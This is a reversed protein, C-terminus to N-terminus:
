SLSKIGCLESRRTLMESHNTNTFVEWVGGYTSAHRAAQEAGVRRYTEAPYTKNLPCILIDVFRGVAGRGRDDKGTCMIFTHTDPITCTQKTNVAPRPMAKRAHDLLQASIPKAYRSEALHTRAAEAIAAYDYTELWVLWDSIEVESPTWRPWRKRIQETFCKASESKNM